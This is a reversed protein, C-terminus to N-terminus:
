AGMRGIAFASADVVVSDFFELVRIAVQATDFLLVTGSDDTSGQDAILVRFGPEVGCWVHALNGFVAVKDAASLATGDPLSLVRSAGYGFITSNNRLDRTEDMYRGTGDTIGKLVQKMAHPIWYRPQGAIIGSGQIDDGVLYQASLASEMNIMDGYGISSYSTSSTAVSGVDVLNTSTNRVGNGSTSFVNSDEAILIQMTAHQLLLQIIAPHAKEILEVSIPKVRTVIKKTTLQKQSFVPQSATASSAESTTAASVDSTMTPINIIENGQMPIITAYKRVLSTRAINEYLMDSFLQPALYGGTSDTGLSMGARTERGFRKRYYASEEEISKQYEAPKGQRALYIGRFVKAANEYDARRNTFADETKTFAREAVEEARDPDLKYKREVDATVSAIAAKAEAAAVTGMRELLAKFQEDSFVAAEKTRQDEAGKAAAFESLILNREQQSKAEAFRKALDAPLTVEVKQETTEM